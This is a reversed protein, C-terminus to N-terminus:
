DVTLGGVDDNRAHKALASVARHNRAAIVPRVPFTGAIHVGRPLHVGARAAAFKVVAKAIELVGKPNFAYRKADVICMDGAASITHIGKGYRGAPPRVTGAYTECFETESLREIRNLTIAGGYTRSCDQAPRYLAGGHEFIQGAPRASRVDIKVPNQAHRKWEGLLDDAYFINLHSHDGKRPGRGNTCFLWWKGGHRLFTSDVARVGDLLPKVFEWCYPFEVARYLGARNISATEAVCYIEGGHEFVQPYSLHHPEDIADQVQMKGGAYRELAVIVGRNLDYRFEECFIFTRGNQEVICPDALFAKRPAGPLPAIKARMDKGICEWPSAELRFVGWEIRLLNIRAFRALANKAAIARGASMQALSPYGFAMQTAPSPNVLRQACGAALHECVGGPWRAIEDLLTDVNQALSDAIVPLHASRLVTREDQSIRVLSAGTLPYGRYIEWFGPVQSQFTGPEGFVFEWIGLPARAAFPKAADAGAFTLVFDVDCPADPAKIPIGERLSAAKTIRAFRDEAAMKARPTNTRVCYALRATGSWELRRICASEWARLKRAPVVVGFTLM